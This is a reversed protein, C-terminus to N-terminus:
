RNHEPESYPVLCIENHNRNVSSANLDIGDGDFFKIEEVFDRM